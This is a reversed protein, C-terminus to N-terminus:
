YKQREKAEVAADRLAKAVREDSENDAAHFMADFEAKTPGDDSAAATADATTVASVGSAKFGETAEISKATVKGSAQVDKTSITNEARLNTFGTYEAM